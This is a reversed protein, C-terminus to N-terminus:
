MRRLFSRVAGAIDEQGFVASGAVLVNAGAALVEAANELGIGGDVELDIRREGILHKVRRIKETVAPIYRQGGFGPNVSMLLILDLDDLLYQLCSEETAPNLAVGARKGCKHIQQIVRHAHSTAEAHFTIIDAGAEAFREVYQEPHAIMLHVDFIMSCGKRLDTIVPLGFSINPVFQGDMVDLHLYQAGAGEAAAVQEGLRSFDCSLISPALQNMTDTGKGQTVKEM